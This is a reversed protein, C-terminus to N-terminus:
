CYHMQVLCFFILSLLYFVILSTSSRYTNTDLCEFSQLARTNLMAEIGSPHRLFESFHYATGQLGSSYTPLKVREKKTACLNAKKANSDSSAVESVKIELTKRFTLKLILDGYFECYGSKCNYM